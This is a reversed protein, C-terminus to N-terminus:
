RSESKQTVSVRHVRGHLATMVEHPVTDLLRSIAEISNPAGPRDDIVVVEEGLTPNIGKAIMPGLDLVTQDMNVRGIVPVIQEGIRMVACNSLRRDYGDAYGVPVVGITTSEEARQTSGYGVLSGAPIKKILSLVTKLRLAQRLDPREQMEHSAHCGYVSVGPRVMNLHVHPVDIMAPSNAAHFLPINVGQREIEKAFRDFRDFQEHAFSKDAGDATAFHTYLGEVQVWNNRHASDIMKRAEEEYTGERTMGTDLMVHVMANKGIKKAATGLTGIDELSSVTSSVHNAVLWESYEKKKPGMYGNLESGMLLIARKWGLRRAERAEAITAVGVMEVGEQALVPLVWESGHGYADGKIAVCMQCGPEMRSRLTQVNQAIADLNIEAVLHHLVSGREPRQPM